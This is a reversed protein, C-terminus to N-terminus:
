INCIYYAWAEKDMRDNEAIERAVNQQLNKRALLSKDRPVKKGTICEFNIVHCLTHMYM